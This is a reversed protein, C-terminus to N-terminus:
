TQSAGVSKTSHEAARSAYARTGLYFQSDSSSTRPTYLTLRDSAERVVALLLGLTYTTAATAFSARSFLSPPPVHTHRINTPEVDSELETLVPDACSYGGAVVVVLPLGAREESKTAQKARV